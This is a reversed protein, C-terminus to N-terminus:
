VTPTAVRVEPTALALPIECWGEDGPALGRVTYQDAFEHLADAHETRPTAAEVHRTTVQMLARASELLLPHGLGFRAAEHHLHSVDPVLRDIESSVDAHVATAVCVAAATRMRRPLADLVRLEMWGRPRVPPFLTSLHYRFDEITPYGAPHGHEMWSWFSLGPAVSTGSSGNGDEDLMYLVDAALAYELWALAPPRDLPVPKTRGPDIGGWIGQRLSAWSTGAADVGRSNAFAALLAPAIRNLTRWRRLPDATENSVNIQVSATNCMMWRGSAGGADFFAQMAVYRPHTLVRQPPRVHDLAVEESDLGVALLRHNIDDADANVTDIADSLCRAPFSSLEIQGGPEITIRGHGALPEEAVRLLRELDPRAAPDQWDRVPWECELGILDDGTPQFMSGAVALM